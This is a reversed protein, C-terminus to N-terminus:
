VNTLSDRHIYVGHNKFSAPSGAYEWARMSKMSTVWRGRHLRRDDDVAWGPTPTGTQVALWEVLAGLFADWQPDGTGPPRAAIMRHRTNADACRFRHALEAAKRVPVVHCGGSIEERISRALGVVSVADAEALARVSLGAEARVSRVFDATTM